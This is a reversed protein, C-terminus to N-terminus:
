QLEFTFFLFPFNATDIKLRIMAGAPLGTITLTNGNFTGTGTAGAPITEWTYSCTGVTGVGFSLQTAGSGAISLDWRTIFDQAFSIQVYIVCLFFLFIKKM